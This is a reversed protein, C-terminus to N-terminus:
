KEVNKVGEVYAWFADIMSLKFSAPELHISSKEHYHGVNGLYDVVQGEWEKDIYTHTLKGTSEPPIQLNRTFADFVGDLGYTELMYTKLAKKNCGAVTFTIDGDKEVLYRKAGLTKFKSYEGEYDWVGILKPIGKITKPEFRSFDFGHFKAAAQLKQRVNENYAEIYDQHDQMNLAKISDTDSYVYDDGFAQIGTFLNHRAHATVWVGWPYYLFRARSKNYSTLQSVNQPEEEWGDSSYTTHYELQTRVIDTVAMGYASNLMGKSLLYEVEKGEVGKLKTKNEYLGLIADVFDTPLYGKHFTYAKGISMSDFIYYKTIIDYDLETITTELIKADIVRGNNVHYDYISTCRSLSITNENKNIPRINIFRVDFMVCYCSCYYDLEKQNHITVERPSSMPFYDSVMTYPYSSTFDISGVNYLTDGVHNVNAHTFGGQFARKCMQYQEQTLTLGRIIDGYKLGKLRSVNDKANVRITHERCYRRVYGTKTYPIRSISNQNREIEEQIYCVVVKTDQTCYYMEKETLPTISTRILSYDLDGVAKETKYKSLEDGLKALSYGSLRYSCRFEIGTETVAYIPSRKDDAFVDYWDIWKRMFQWEYELNHVYIIMRHNYKNLIFQKSILALLQTFQKWTRGVFTIGDINFTWIYMIAKKALGDKFSSTEIDFSTPINIYHIKNAYDWRYNPLQKIKNLQSVCKEEDIPGILDSSFVEVSHTQTLFSLQTTSM